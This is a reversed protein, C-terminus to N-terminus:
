LDQTQAVNNLLIFFVVVGGLEKLVKHKAFILFQQFDDDNEDHIIAYSAPIQATHVWNSPVAIDQNYNHAIWSAIFYARDNSMDSCFYNSFFIFNDLEQEHGLNLDWWQLSWM